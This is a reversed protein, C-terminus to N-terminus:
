FSLSLPNKLLSNLGNMCSKCRPFGRYVYISGHPKSAYGM